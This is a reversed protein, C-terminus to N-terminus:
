KRTTYPRRHINHDEQQQQSRDALTKFFTFANVFSNSRKGVSNRSISGANLFISEHSSSLSNSGRSNRNNQTKSPSVPLSSSSSGLTELASATSLGTVSVIASSSGLTDDVVKSKRKFLFTNRKKARELRERERIEEEEALLRNIEDQVKKLEDQRELVVSERKHIKSERDRIHELVFLVHKERKSVEEERLDLELARQDLRQRMNDLEARLRDLSEREQQLQALIADNEHMPRASSKSSKETSLASNNDHESKVLSSFDLSFNYKNASSVHTEDDAAHDASPSTVTVSPLHTDSEMTEVTDAPDTQHDGLEMMTSRNEEQEKEEDDDDEDDVEDEENEDEDEMHWLTQQNADILRNLRSVLERENIVQTWSIREGTEQPKRAFFLSVLQEIIEQKEMPMVNRLMERMENRSLLGDRDRDCHMFWHRIKAVKHLERLDVVLSLARVFDLWSKGEEEEGQQQQQQQENKPYMEQVLVEPNTSCGFDLLM